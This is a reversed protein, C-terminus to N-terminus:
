RNKLEPASPQFKKVKLQKRICKLAKKQRHLYYIKESTVNKRKSVNIKYKRGLSSRRSKSQSGKPGLKSIEVSFIHFALEVGPSM